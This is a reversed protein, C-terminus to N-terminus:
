NPGSDEEEVNEVVSDCEACMIFEGVEIRREEPHACIRGSRRLTEAFAWWAHAMAVARDYSQQLDLGIGIDMNDKAM